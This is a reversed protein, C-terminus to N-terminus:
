EDADLQPGSPTPDAESPVRHPEPADHCEPAAPPEPHLRDAKGPRPRTRTHQAHFTEQLNSMHMMTLSNAIERSIGADILTRFFQAISEAMQKSSEPSFIKEQIGQMLGPIRESVVDLVERLEDAGELSGDREELEDEMEDLRDQLEDLHELKEDFVDQIRELRDDFAEQLQELRQQQKEQLKEMEQELREKEMRLREKERRIADAHGHNPARSSDQTRHDQSRFM